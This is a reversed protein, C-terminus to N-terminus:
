IPSGKEAAMTLAGVPEAMPAVMAKAAVVTTCLEV